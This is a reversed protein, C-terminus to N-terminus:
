GGCPCCEFTAEAGITSASRCGTPGAPIQGMNGACEVAYEDAHCENVCATVRGLSGGGDARSCTTLGSSECVVTVGQTVAGDASRGGGEGKPGECSLLTRAAYCGAPPKPWTCAPLATSQAADTVHTVADDHVAADNSPGDTTGGGGCAASALAVLM